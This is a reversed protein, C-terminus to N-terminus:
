YLNQILLMSATTHDPTSLRGQVNVPIVTDFQTLYHSANIFLVTITQFCSM